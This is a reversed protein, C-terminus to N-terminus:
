PEFKLRPGHNNYLSHVAWRIICSAGTVEGPNVGVDPLRTTNQILHVRRHVEAGNHTAKEHWVKEQRM